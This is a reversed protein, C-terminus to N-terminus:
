FTTETTYETYDTQGPDEFSVDGSLEVTTEGDYYVDTEGALIVEDGDPKSYLPSTERTSEVTTEGALEVKDTPEPEPQLEGAYQVPKSGGCGTVAVATLAAAIGIAYLPKKYNRSQTIKM